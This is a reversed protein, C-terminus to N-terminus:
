TSDLNTKAKRGLLLCRKIKHSCDSDATIKYSLFLFDTVTELKERDIQWSTIPSSAMIKFKQINPKLGSKASEAKVRMLLSKLEEKSELMLITDDAYRFNNNNRRVIKIRAQSDELGANGMIYRAYFNFLCPSLICGQHIGKGIKFLDTTGHRTRVTSQQGAYLNRLFCILHAPIGM